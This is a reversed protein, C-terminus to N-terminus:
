RSVKRPPRRAASEATARAGREPHGKAIAAEDAKSIIGQAALMAAHAKSGAIDQGYLRKDFGISANIEAMIAAPGSAFRGGWMSNSANSGKSKTM